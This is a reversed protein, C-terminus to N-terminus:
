HANESQILGMWRCHNHANIERMHLRNLCMHNDAIRMHVTSCMIDNIDLFALAMYLEIPIMITYNVTAPNGKTIM